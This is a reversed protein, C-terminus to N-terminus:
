PLRDGTGPASSSFIADTVNRQGLQHKSRQPGVPLTLCELASSGVREPLLVIEDESARDARGQLRSIHISVEGAHHPPCPQRVQAEMVQPM